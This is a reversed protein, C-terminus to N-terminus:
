RDVEVLLVGRSVPVCLVLECFCAPLAGCAASADGVAGDLPRCSPLMTTVGIRTDWLANM